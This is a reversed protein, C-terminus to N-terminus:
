AASIADLVTVAAYGVGLAVGSLVALAARLTWVRDPTTLTATM